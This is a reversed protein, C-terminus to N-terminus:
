AMDRASSAAWPFARSMAAASPAANVRAKYVRITRGTDQERRGHPGNLGESLRCKRRCQSLLQFARAQPHGHM